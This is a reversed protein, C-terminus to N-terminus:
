HNIVNFDVKKTCIRICVQHVIQFGDKTMNTKDNSGLGANNCLIDLAHGTELWRQCFAEVSDLDAMDIEWWEIKSLHGSAEALDKCEKIVAAPNLEWSVPHRCALILNAGWSAFSKAAELGIGNNSGSIVIWKGKLDTGPIQKANLSIPNLGRLAQIRDHFGPRILTM